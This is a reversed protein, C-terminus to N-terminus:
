LHTRGSILCRSVFEIYRRAALHIDLQERSASRRIEVRSDRALMVDRAVVECDVPPYESLGWLAEYHLPPECQSVIGGRATKVVEASGGTPAVVAPLGCAMAELVVNDCADAFTLNLFVDGSRYWASMAAPSLHEVSLVRPHEEAPEASAGLMLLWWKDDERLLRELVRLYESQRKPGRWTAAAVLVSDDRGVPLSSRHSEGLPTFEELDVGNHIVTEVPASVQLLSHCMRQAHKSQYVCGCSRSVARALRANRNSLECVGLDLHYYAGDLRVVYPKWPISRAVGSFLSADQLPDLFSTTRALQQADISQRLRKMFLQPGLNGRSPAFGIRLSEEKVGSGMVGAAATLARDM